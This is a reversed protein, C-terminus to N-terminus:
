FRVGIFARASWNLDLISLDKTFNSWSANYVVSTGLIYRSLNYVFSIHALGDISFQQSLASKESQSFVHNHHYVMVSPMLSTHLLCREHNFVLNYAYGGGVCIQTTTLKNYQSNDFMLISRYYSVLALWSGASRRQIVTQSLAAPLSFRTHNFVYYINGSYLRQHIQNSMIDVNEEPNVASSITGTFSHSNRIHFEAGYTQGYTSFSFEEDKQESFDRSYSLGWGRYSLGVSFFSTLRSSVNGDYAQPENYNVRNYDLLLRSKVFNTNISAIFGQNPWRVYSTDAGAVDASDVWNIIKRLRSEAVVTTTVFVSLLLFVIFRRM